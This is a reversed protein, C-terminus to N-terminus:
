GYVDVHLEAQALQTVKHERCFLKRICLQFIESVEPHGVRFLPPVGSCRDRSSLTTKMEKIDLRHFCFFQSKNRQCLGHNNGRVCFQAGVRQRCFLNLVM